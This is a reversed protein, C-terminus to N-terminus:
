EVQLIRSTNTKGIKGMIDGQTVIVLDKSFLFGKKVLLLLAENAAKVGKNTSPFYIPTVGR